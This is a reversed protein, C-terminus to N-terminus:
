TTSAHVRARADSVNLESTRFKKTSARHTAHTNALKVRVSKFEGSFNVVYYPISLLSAVRRADRFDEPSCCGSSATNDRADYLKMSIGIVDFGQKVLLYAAVSSDVGGSMAVAVRPKM